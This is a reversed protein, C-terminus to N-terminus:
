TCRGSQARKFLYLDGIRWRGWLSVLVGILSIVALATQGLAPGDVGVVPAMVVAIQTVTQSVNPDLLGIPAVTALAVGFNTVSKLASKM